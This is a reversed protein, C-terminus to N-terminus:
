RKQLDIGDIRHLRAGIAFAPTECERYRAPDHHKRGRDPRLGVRPRYRPLETGTPAVGCYRIAELYGDCHRRRTTNSQHLLRKEGIAGVLHLSRKPDRRGNGCAIRAGPRSKRDIRSAVQHTAVTPNPLSILDSLQFLMLTARDEDIRQNAEEDDTGNDRGQVVAVADGFVIRSHPARHRSKRTHM